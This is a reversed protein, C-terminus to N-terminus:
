NIYSNYVETKNGLLIDDISAKLKEINEISVQRGFGLQEQEKDINLTGTKKFNRNLLEITDYYIELKRIGIKGDKTKTIPIEAILLEDINPETNQRYTTPVFCYYADERYQYFNEFILCGYENGFNVSLVDGKAFLTNELKHFKKRARIKSKPNSLKELLKQLEKNRNELNKKDFNELWFSDAGKDIIRKLETLNEDKLLGIEWLTLCSSSIFIEFDLSNDIKLKLSNLFEMIEGDSKNKDYLDFIENQIDIAFDSELIKVGDIAM